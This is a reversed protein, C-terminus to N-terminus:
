LEEQEMYKYNVRVDKIWTPAVVLALVTTIVVEPDTAALQDWQCKCIIDMLLASM